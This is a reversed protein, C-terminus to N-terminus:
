RYHALWSGIGLLLYLTASGIFVILADAVTRSRAPSETFSM